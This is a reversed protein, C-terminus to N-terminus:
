KSIYRANFDIWRPLAEMLIEKSPLFAIRLHHTNEKQGFGSGNVTCIGTQELLAMCYDFDNRGKPLATLRPFLYLAGTEGFCEIGNMEQFADRIMEAKDFQDQLILEKEKQYILHSKTNKEPPNVMLYTMIQGPTNACLSVSAMKNLIDVLDINTGEIMPPNRVELYGGRHGCEGIFGKSISHISCLSINKTGIIKAFSTFKGNFVNEQYVEDAIIILTHDKAFAAIELMDAETLIAGTPNGPNIVVIAKPKIGDKIAKSYAKELGERNFSWGDEENLYYNIQTGGAKTIEASYLPYQPIPIMIGANKESILIDIIFKVAQSAGNTLFINEPTSPIGRELKTGDRKNIFEAVAERVFQFGKSETYAGIGTKSKSLIDECTLLVDEQIIENARVNSGTKEVLERIRRERHILSPNEILSIITRFYTLPLQGLAQPNGINCSIVEKGQKKMQLAKQAIPGRVAYEVDLMNQNIILKERVQHM